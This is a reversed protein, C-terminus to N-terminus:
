YSLLIYLYTLNNASASRSAGSTNDTFSSGGLFSQYYTQQLVIHIYPIPDYYMEFGSGSTNPSGNSSCYALMSTYQNCAGTLINPNTLDASYGWYTNDVSGKSAFEFISVGYKRAYDYTLKSKLTVLNSTPNDHSKGVSLQGWNVEEKILTTQASFSHTSTIHQFQSDLGYDLYKGSASGTVLPDRALRSNMGFTGIMYSNEGKTKNWALRWYPNEGSKLTNQPGAMALTAWGPQSRHYDAIELYVTDDIMTYASLGITQSALGGDMLTTPGFQGIGWANQLSSTRYPFANAPTTSWLDQVSPSNNVDLGWVVDHKGLKLERAMRVESSDLFTDQGVKTGTQVGGSAYIPSTNAFSSTWKLYGGINEWYKGAAYLNAEELIPQNNKALYVSPDASSSTDKIKTVSGTATISLPLVNKGKTYGLLKFKRGEPTLEGVNLHCASCPQETQRSFTPLANAHNIFCLALIGPLASRRLRQMLHTLLPTMKINSLM